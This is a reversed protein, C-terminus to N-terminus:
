NSIPELSCCCGPYPYDPVSHIPWLGDNHLAYHECLDSSPKEDHPVWKIHSIGASKMFAKAAEQYARNEEGVLIRTNWMLASGGSVQGTSNFCLKIGKVLQNPTQKFTLATHLTQEVNRFTHFASRYVRDELTKHHFPMLIIESLTQWYLNELTPNDLPENLLTQYQTLTLNIIYSIRDLLFDYLSEAFIKHIKELDRTMRIKAFIDLNDYQKIFSDISKITPNIINKVLEIKHHRQAVLIPDIIM